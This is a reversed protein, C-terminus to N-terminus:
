FDHAINTSWNTLIISNGGEHSCKFLSPFPCSTLSGGSAMHSLSLSLMVPTAYTNRYTNCSNSSHHGWFWHIQSTQVQSWQTRRYKGRQELVVPIDKSKDTKDKDIKNKRKIENLTKWNRWIGRGELGYQYRTKPAVLSSMLSIHILM